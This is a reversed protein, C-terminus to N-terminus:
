RTRETMDAPFSDADSHTDAAPAAGDNENDAAQSVDHLELLLEVETGDGPFTHITATGGARTMRAEISESIGRRDASVNQPDFGTGTDRVFVELVRGRIEAFVDIRPAGSHKAANTIAERTAGLLGELRADREAEMSVDGVVVVEIPVRHDAELKTAMHELETQLRVRGASTTPGYLWSRLEREQRRALQSTTAPDDAHRQILTLTQLVSDHLHAAVRAREDARVREKREEDLSTGIRLVSPAAVLVIGIIVALVLVLSLLGDRFDYTSAAFAMLGGITVAVGALVRGVTSVGETSERGRSWAILAGIFVFSAPWVISGFFGVGVLRFLMVLGLVVMGVGLHRQTSSAGKELPTYPEITRVALAVWIAIYLVLGWGGAAALMVFAARIVLPQVGVEAAIGAAVGGLMRENESALRPVHWRTRM